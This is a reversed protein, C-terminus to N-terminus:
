PGRRTLGCLVAVCVCVCGGEGCSMCVAAAPPRLTPPVRTVPTCTAPRTGSCGARVAADRTAQCRTFLILVVVACTLTARRAGTWTARALGGGAGGPGGRPGPWVPARGHVVAVTMHTSSRLPSAAGQEPRRWPHLTARRALRFQATIGCTARWRLHPRQGGDVFAAQGACGGSGGGVGPWVVGM